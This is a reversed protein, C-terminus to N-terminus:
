GAATPSPQRRALAAALAASAHPQLVQKLRRGLVATLLLGAGLVALGAYAAWQPDLQAGAAAIGVGIMVWSTTWAVAGVTDFISFRVWTLQSAGAGVGILTYTGKSFRYLPLLLREYREVGASGLALWPAFRPFKEYLLPAFNRGVWFRLQSGVLTGASVVALVALLDLAGSFSIYGAIMPLPGTKGMAYALLLGYVLTDYKAILEILEQPTM